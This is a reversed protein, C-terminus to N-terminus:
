SKNQKRDVHFLTVQKQRRLSDILLEAGRGLFYWWFTGAVCVWTAALVQSEWAVLFAPLSIPLDAMMVYWFIIAFTPLRSLLIGAFSILCVCLHFIPLFHFWRLDRRNIL